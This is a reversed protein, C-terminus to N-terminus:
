FIFLILICDAVQARRLGFELLSKSKGAVFRHRAANTAVLSAFNILNVLPTELLQAVQLFMLRTLDVRSVFHVHYVTFLFISSFWNSPTSVAIPGEIRLLPVKPFVASGEAIAYVEVESCDLGRLYDFFGDQLIM